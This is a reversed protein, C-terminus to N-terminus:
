RGSRPDVVTLRGIDIEHVRTLGGGSNADYLIARRGGLYHDIVAVHGGGPWVVAMGDAPAARHFRLWSAALALGGRPCPRGFVRVCAGCGCFLTGPCGAPHAVVRGRDYVARHGAESRQLRSDRSIIHHPSGAGQGWEVAEAGRPAVVAVVLAAAAILKLM